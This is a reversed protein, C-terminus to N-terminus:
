TPAVFASITGEATITISGNSGGGTVKVLTITAPAGAPAQIAAAQIGARATAQTNGSTGGNAVDLVGTVETPLNVTGVLVNGTKDPFTYVRNASNAHVFTGLFATGSQWMLNATCTLGNLDLGLLLTLSGAIRIWWQKFATTTAGSSWELTESAATQPNGGSDQLQEVVNLGFGATAAGTTSHRRLVVTTRVNTVADLINQLYGGVTVFKAGDWVYQTQEATDNATFIFGKDIIGLDTPQNVLAAVMNGSDWTWQIPGNANSGVYTTNRDTEYFLAGLAPATSLRLVHTGIVVPSGNINFANNNTINNIIQSVLQQVQNATATTLATPLTNLAGRLYYLNDFINKLAADNPNSEVLHAPYTLGPAQMPTPTITPTTPAQTPAQTSM